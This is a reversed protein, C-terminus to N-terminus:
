AVLTVDSRRDHAIDVGGGVCRGATRADSAGPLCGAAVICLDRRALARSGPCGRDENGGHVSAARSVRVADESRLLMLLDVHFTTVMGGAFLLVRLAAALFFAGAFRFAAFFAGAFRLAGAFRFAAFFAGAFRFAAFFAGAFRLATLRLAGAFRFAVFRLAGAFRLAAFFAGAFRFAAFFAGAFRLAALRFAGALRFAVL